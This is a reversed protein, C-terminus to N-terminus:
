DPQTALNRGRAINGAEPSCIMLDDQSLPLSQKIIGLTIHDHSIVSLVRWTCQNLCVRSVLLTAARKLASIVDFPLIIMRCSWIAGEAHCARSWDFDM